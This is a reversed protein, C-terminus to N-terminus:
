PKKGELQNDSNVRLNFEKSTNKMNTDDKKLEISDKELDKKVKSIYDQYRNFEINVREIEESM